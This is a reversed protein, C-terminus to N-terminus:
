QHLAILQVGIVLWCTEEFHAVWHRESSIQFSQSVCGMKQNNNKVRKEWKDKEEEEKWTQKVSGLSRSLVPNRCDKFTKSLKPSIIQWKWPRLLRHFIFPEVSTRSLTFFSYNLQPGQFDTFFSYNLQPGHFDTFFSYNLWLRHFTAFASKQRFSYLGYNGFKSFLQSPQKMSQGIHIINM